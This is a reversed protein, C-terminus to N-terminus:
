CIQKRRRDLAALRMAVKSQDLISAAESPLRRRWNPHEDITGPINPQEDLALADEIPLIVLDSAATAIHVALTDAIADGAEPAPMAGQGAGSELCASWLCERDHARKGADEGALGLRDRWGIDTGRWWGAITPLDHTTTLAATDARWASPPIFRDGDREFWLISMGALGSAALSDRFGHPVTGLDEAVVIGQHRFSELMVIRRMDDFPYRLYCGDKAEGGDPIIWLRSLGMAHDIRVGGAPELAAALMDRLASFGSQRLGRPSFATLGWNQGRRNFEDPPAGVSAGRLVESPRSWADSGAPDAGVALDAILGIAMDADIAARQAAKLSTSARWQAYLHFAVDEHCEAVLSTVELTTPDRLVAPWSRWDRGAGIALQHTVIAEFWAHLRIARPATTQFTAFDPNNRDHAFAARLAAYRLPASVRWDILGDATLPPEACDVGAYVPNLAIRSSPGYPGYHGPESAYLAHIPSIAVADAGHGGASRVFSALAAFDGIGGDNKRVLGYVQAALGWVKGSRGRCHLADQVTFARSPAVAVDIAREGLYIQHYGPRAIREIRVKGDGIDHPNSEYATGDDLVVRVVGGAYELVIDADVSTTLLKPLRRTEAELVAVADHCASESAAPLGLATLLARLTDPTVDHGTGFVDHWTRSLGACEALHYLTADNM